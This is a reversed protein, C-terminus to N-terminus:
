QKNIGSDSNNCSGGCVCVGRGKKSNFWLAGVVGTYFSFGPSCESKRM